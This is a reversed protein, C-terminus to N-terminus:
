FARAQTLYIWQQFLNAQNQGPSGTAPPMHFNRAVQAFLTPNGNDKRQRCLFKLCTLM